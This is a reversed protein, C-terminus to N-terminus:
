TLLLGCSPVVVAMRVMSHMGDNIIVITLLLSNFQLNISKAQRYYQKYHMEQVAKTVAFMFPFSIRFNFSSSLAHKNKKVIPSSVVHKLQRKHYSTDTLQMKIDGVCVMDAVVPTDNNTNAKQMVPENFVILGVKGQNANHSGKM